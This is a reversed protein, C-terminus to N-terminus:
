RSYLIIDLYNADPITGLEEKPFWRFCVIAYTEAMWVCVIELWHYAECIFSTVFVFGRNAM